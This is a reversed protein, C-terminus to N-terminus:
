KKLYDLITSLGELMFMDTRQAGNVTYTLILMQKEKLQNLVTDPNREMTGLFRNYVAYDLQIFNQNSSGETNEIFSINQASTGDFAMSLNVLKEGTDTTSESAGKAGKVMEMCWTIKGGDNLIVFKNDSSQSKLFLRTRDTNWNWEGFEDSTSANLESESKAVIRPTYWNSSGVTISTTRTTNGTMNLTFTKQSLKLKGSFKGNEYEAQFDFTENFSTSGSAYDERRSTEVPPHRNSYRIYVSNESGSANIPLKIVMKENEWVVFGVGRFTADWSGKREWDYNGNSNFGSNSDISSGMQSSLTVKYKDDITMSWNNGSITISKQKPIVNRFFDWQSDRDVTTQSYVNIGVFITVMFVLFTKKMKREEM